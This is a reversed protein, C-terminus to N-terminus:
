FKINLEKAKGGKEDMEIFWKDENKYLVGTSGDKNVLFVDPVSTSKLTYVVKPTTDVLQYGGDVPQAYLISKEKVANPDPEDAVNFKEAPGSSTKGEEKNAVEQSENDLSKIDNKFSVTIPETTKTEEKKAPEYRYNLGRFSGFSESIAERYALELDKTKTRGEQSMMILVGHCDKLALKTRTQFLGSENVLAVKAGLCPNEELEEPLNNDYVVNFGENDFLYKVLTSTRFQNENKFDQFKAPVVIYKYSNLQGYGVASALLALSMMLVFKKMDPFM